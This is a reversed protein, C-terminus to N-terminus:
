SSSGVHAGFGIAAHVAHRGQWFWSDNDKSTTRPAVANLLSIVAPLEPILLARLSFVPLLDGFRHFVSLISLRKSPLM